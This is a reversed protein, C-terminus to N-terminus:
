HYDVVEVQCPGERTWEFCIRYQQNIRISHQGARDGKLVELRNGPPTRLDEVSAAANLLDLKRSTQVHLSVPLRKRAAKTPAGNFLDLTATDAFTRIMLIHTHTAVGAYCSTHAVLNGDHATDRPRM